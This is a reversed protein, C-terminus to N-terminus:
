RKVASFHVAGDVHRVAIRRFGVAKLARQIAGVDARSGTIGTIVGNRSLVRHAEAFMQRGEREILATYPLREVLVSTASRTKLPLRQGVGIVSPLAATDPNITITGAGHRPFGPARGGGIVVRTSPMNPMPVCVSHTRPSKGLAAALRATRTVSSGLAALIFPAGQALLSGGHMLFLLPKIRQFDRPPLRLIQRGMATMELERVVGEMYMRDFPNRCGSMMQARNVDYNTRERTMVNQQSPRLSAPARSSSQPANSAPSEQAKEKENGTPDFYTYPNGDAYIYHHSSSSGAKFLAISDVSNFVGIAPNYYRAGFYYIWFEGEL